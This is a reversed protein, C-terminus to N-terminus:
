STPVHIRPRRLVPPAVAWVEKLPRELKVPELMELCEAPGPMQVPVAEPLIALTTM